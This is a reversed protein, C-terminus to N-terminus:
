SSGKGGHLVDARTVRKYPNGSCSRDAFRTIQRIRPAQDTTHQRRRRRSEWARRTEQRDSRNRVEFFRDRKIGRAVRYRRDEQQRQYKEILMASTPKVKKASKRQVNEKWVGDEQNHPKIM